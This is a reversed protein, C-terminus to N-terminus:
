RHFARWLGVMLRHKGNFFDENFYVFTIVKELIQLHPMRILGKLVYLFYVYNNKEEFEMHNYQSIEPYAFLRLENLPIIRYITVKFQRDYHIPEIIRRDQLISFFALGEGRSSIIDLPSSMSPFTSNEILYYVGQLLTFGEVHRLMFYNLNCPSDKACPGKENKKGGLSTTNPNNKAIVESNEKITESNEKVVEGSAIVEMNEKVVESSAIVEMNEKVVESSAVVESNEEFVVEDDSKAKWLSPIKTRLVSEKKRITTDISTEYLMDLANHQTYIISLNNNYYHHSHSMADFKSM